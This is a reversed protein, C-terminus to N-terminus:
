TAAGEGVRWGGIIERTEYNTMLQDCLDQFLGFRWINKKYTSEERKFSGIIHFNSTNRKYLGM